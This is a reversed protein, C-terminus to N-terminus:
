DAVYTFCPPIPYTTGKAIGHIGTCPQYFDNGWPNSGPNIVVVNEFVVGQMPNSSNGLLVGPSNRSNYITIDKLVINSWTQFGSMLCEAKDILNWLLSCPQGDQQAPGIWIAYQEPNYMTINEYLIDSISASPGPPANDRWRTKM